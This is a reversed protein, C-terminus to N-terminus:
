GKLARDLARERKARNRCYTSCYRERPGLQDAAPITGAEIMWARVVRVEDLDEFCNRCHRGCQCRYDHFGGPVEYMWITEGMGGEWDIGQLALM